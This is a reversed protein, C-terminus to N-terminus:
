RTSWKKLYAFAAQVRETSDSFSGLGRNCPSCLIGRVCLGCSRGPCCLHDHDIPSRFNVPTRCIACLGEQIEHLARWAEPTLRYVSWLYQWRISDRNAARFIKKRESDCTLCEWAWAHKVNPTGHVECTRKGTM